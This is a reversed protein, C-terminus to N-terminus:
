ATGDSLDVVGDGIMLDLVGTLSGLDGEFDFEINNGSVSGSYLAQGIGDVTYGSLAIFMGDGYASIQPNVAISQVSPEGQFNPPTISSWTTGNASVIINGTNPMGVFKTGDHIISSYLGAPITTNAWTAGNDTSIMGITRGTSEGTQPLAIWKNNGYGLVWSGDPGSFESVSWSAGNDTSRIVGGHVSNFTNQTRIMFTGGGFQISIKFGFGTPFGEQSGLAVNGNYNWTLGNNSVFTLDQLLDVAIFKGNGYAVGTVTTEFNSGLDDRVSPLVNAQKTWTIGDTSVAVNRSDYYPAVIIGEGYAMGFIPSEDEPLVTETWDLGDYSYAGSNGSYGATAGDVAVFKTDNWIVSSLNSSPNVPVTDTFAWTMSIPIAESRIPEGSSIAIGPGIRMGPGILIAM